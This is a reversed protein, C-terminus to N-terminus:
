PKAIAKRQQEHWLEQLYELAGDRGCGGGGKYYHIDHPDCVFWDNGGDRCYYNATEDTSIPLSHCSSPGPLIEWAIIPVSNFDPRCDM